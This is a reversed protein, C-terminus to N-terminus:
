QAICLQEAASAGATGCRMYSMIQQGGENRGYVSTEELAVFNGRTAETVMRARGNESWAYTQTDVPIVQVSRTRGQQDQINLTASNSATIIVPNACSAITELAAGSPGSQRTVMWKGEYQYAPGSFRAKIEGEKAAASQPASFRETHYAGSSSPSQYVRSTSSHPARTSPYFRQGEGRRYTYTGVSRTYTKGDQTYTVSGESTLPATPASEEAQTSVADTAAQQAAAPTAAFAMMAVLAASTLIIKKM